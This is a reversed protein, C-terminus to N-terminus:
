CQFTNQFRHHLDYDLYVISSLSCFVHGIWFQWKGITFVLCNGCNSQPQVYRQFLSSSLLLQHSLWIMIMVPFKCIPPNCLNYHGIIRDHQLLDVKLWVGLSGFVFCQWTIWCCCLWKSAFKNMRSSPLALM